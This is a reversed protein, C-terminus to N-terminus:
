CLLEVLSCLKTKHLWGDERAVVQASLGDPSSRTLIGLPRLVTVKLWKLIISGELFRRITEGSFYIWYRAYLSLTLTDESSGYRKYRLNLIGTVTAKFVWSAKPFISTEQYIWGRSTVKGQEFCFLCNYSGLNLRLTTGSSGTRLM